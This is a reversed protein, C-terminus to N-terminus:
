FLGDDEDVDVADGGSVNVRKVEDLRHQVAQQVDSNYRTCLLADAVTITQRKAHRAFCVLDPAYKREIYLRLLEQVLIFVDDDFVVGTGRRDHIVWDSIRAISDLLIPDDQLMVSENEENQCSRPPTM